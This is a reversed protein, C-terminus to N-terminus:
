SPRAAGGATLAGAGVMVDVVEYVETTAEDHAGGADIGHEALMQGVAPGLRDRGFAEFADQSEWVDVMRLGGEPRALTVHAVLGELPADGLLEKVRQHMEPTAPIDHIQAYM